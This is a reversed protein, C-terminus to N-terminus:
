KTEGEPQTKAQKDKRAKNKVRIIAAHRQSRQSETMGIAKMAVEHIEKVRPSYRSSAGCLECIEFLADRLGSV